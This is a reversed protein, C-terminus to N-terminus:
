VSGLFLSTPTPSILEAVELSFKPATTLKGPDFSIYGGNRVWGIDFREHLESGPDDIDTSGWAFIAGGEVRTVVDPDDLLPELDPILRRLAVVTEKAIRGSDVTSLRERWDIPEVGELIEFMGTPYWSLFSRGSPFHVIDGFPGLLFTTTPAGLDRNGHWINVGLKLRNIWRRTPARGMRADIVVRNAWLANTVFRFPGENRTKTGDSCVVRYAEAVPEVNQVDVGMVLEINPHAIVAECVLDALLSTDIAREATKFRGIVQDPDYGGSEPDARQFMPESLDAIYSRGTKALQQRTYAEVKLFHAEIQDVPLMSEKLVAYEFPDSVLCSRDSMDVWRSLTEGFALAGDIMRQATRFSQDNAYVFGLHIKGECWRSAEQMPKQRRDFLLVHEGRDAVEVAVGCGALGAGLVAVSM